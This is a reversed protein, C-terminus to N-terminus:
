RNRGYKVWDYLCVTKACQSALPQRDTDFPERHSALFGRLVDPEILDEDIFPLYYLVDDAAYTEIVEAFSVIDELNREARQKYSGLGKLLTQRAEM